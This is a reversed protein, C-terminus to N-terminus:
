SKGALHFRRLTSQPSKASIGRGLAAYRARLILCEYVASRAAYNMIFSKERLVFAVPERV